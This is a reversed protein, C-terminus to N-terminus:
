SGHFEARKRYGPTNLAGVKIAGPLIEITLDSDFFVEGDLNVLLPEESRIFVKKVRRLFFIEPFKGYNGGLYDPMLRLIKFPRLARVMMMDLFGDDPVATIVASKGIGYCPGNAINIISYVGSLDIGDANIEYRRAIVNQDFAALAGGLSYL